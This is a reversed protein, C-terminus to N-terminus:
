VGFVRSMKEEEGEAPVGADPEGEAPAPELAAIAESLLGKIAEDEMGADRLMQLLEEPQM